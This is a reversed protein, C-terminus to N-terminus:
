FEGQYDPLSDALSHTLKGRSAPASLLGPHFLVVLLHECCKCFVSSAFISNNLMNSFDVLFSGPVVPLLRRSAAFYPPSKGM